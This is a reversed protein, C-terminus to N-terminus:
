NRERFPVSQDHGGKVRKSLIRREDDDGIVFWPRQPEAHLGKIWLLDAKVRTVEPDRV